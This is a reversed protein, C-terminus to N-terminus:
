NMVNISGCITSSLRKDWPRKGNRKSVYPVQDTKSM